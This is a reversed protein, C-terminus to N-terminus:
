GETEPIVGEEQLIREVDPGTFLNARLEHLAAGNDFTYDDITDKVVRDASRTMRKVAEMVGRIGERVNGMEREMWQMECEANSTADGPGATEITEQMWSEVDGWLGPIVDRAFEGVREYFGDAAASVRFCPHDAATLANRATRFLREQMATRADLKRKIAPPLPLTADSDADSAQSADSVGEGASKAGTAKGGENHPTDNGGGLAASTEMEGARHAVKGVSRSSEGLSAISGPGQQPPHRPRDNIPGPSLSVRAGALPSERAPAEAGISPSRENEM